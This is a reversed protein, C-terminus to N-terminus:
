DSQNLIKFIVISGEDLLQHFYLCLGEASCRASNKFNFLPLLSFILLSTLVMIPIGSFCNVQAIKLEGVGALCSLFWCPVLSSGRFTPLLQIVPCVTPGSATAGPNIGVAQVPKKSDMRKPHIGQEAQFYHPSVQDKRLAMHRTKESSHIPAPTPFFTSPIPPPSPTPVPAPIYFSFLYNRKLFLIFFDKVNLLQISKQNSCLYKNWITIFYTM